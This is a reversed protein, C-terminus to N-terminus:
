AYKVKRPATAPCRRDTKGSAQNATTGPSTPVSKENGQDSQQQRAIKAKQEAKRIMEDAVEKKIVGQEVLLEILNLTTEYLLEAKEREDPRQQVTCAFALGIVAAAITWYIKM